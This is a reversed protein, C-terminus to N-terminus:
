GAIGVNAQATWNKDIAGGIDRSIAEADTAQTYVKIENIRTDVSTNSNSVNSVNPPLAESAHIPPLELGKAFDGLNINPMSFEVGSLMDALNFQPPDNEITIDPAPINLAKGIEGFDIKPMQPVVAENDITVNPAPLNLAAALSDIDITPAPTKLAELLPSYDVVPAPATHEPADVNVIPAPTEEPTVGFTSAVSSLLDYARNRKGPSLPVVAENGAEAILAHTPETFIGGDALVGQEHLIDSQTKEPQIDPAFGGGMGGHTANAESTDIDAKVTIKTMGLKAAISNWTDVIWNFAAGLTAKIHNALASFTNKVAEIDAKTARVFEAVAHIIVNKFIAAIAELAPTVAAALLGFIYKIYDWMLQAGAKVEEWAAIADKPSGFIATWLDSLASEGGEAWVVLDEIVLALAALAAVIAMITLTMPNALWAAAMKALAPLLVGTIVAALGIFFAKVFTEHKRLFAVAKNVIEIFKTFAPLVMRFIIASFSKMVQGFDAIRDNWDATVKADEKTYVGLEKQLRIQEKLATRGQQLLMITGEDLGLSRGLGFFEQKGMTEAKEALDMMVDFAQRQRGIEGADIGVGELMKAARSTGVTAQRALQTTLSQLSGQFGEVSGGARAAAEGWAHMKEIDVDLADALKGMADAEAVYEGFRSFISLAAAAGATLISLKSVISSTMSSIASEAEKAGRKVDDTKLGMSILLEDIIM